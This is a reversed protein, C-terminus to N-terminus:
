IGIEVAGDTVTGSGADGAEKAGGAGGTGKSEIPGLIEVGGMCDIEIDCRSKRAMMSSTHVKEVVEADKM